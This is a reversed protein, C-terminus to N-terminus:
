GNFQEKLKKVTGSIGLITFIIAIVFDKMISWLFDGSQYLLKLNYFSPQFGENNLLILPIIVLTAVTVSIISVITIIMPLRKDEKGKFLKYGKLVSWAIFIALASLMMNGYIYIIIWPITAVLGGLLAGIIGLVYNKM